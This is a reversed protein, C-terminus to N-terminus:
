FGIISLHTLPLLEGIRILINGKLETFIVDHKNLKQKRQL